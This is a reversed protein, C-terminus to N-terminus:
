PCRRTLKGEQELKEVTPGFKSIIKSIRENNKLFDELKTQTAAKTKEGSLDVDRELKLLDNYAKQMELTRMESEEVDTLNATGKLEDLRKQDKKKNWSQKISFDAGKGGLEIFEKKKARLTEIETKEQPTPQSKAELEDLRAKDASSWVKSTDMSLSFDLIDKKRSELEDLEKNEERTLPRAPIADIKVDNGSSDKQNSEPVGDRADTLENLRAIEEASFMKPAVRVNESGFLKKAEKVASAYQQRSLGSGVDPTIIVGGNMSLRVQVQHKQGFEQANAIFKKALEEREAKQSELELNYKYGYSQWSQISPPTRNQVSEGMVKQANKVVAQFKAVVGAMGDGNFEFSISDGQMAAESIFKPDSFLRMASSRDFLLSKGDAFQVEVWQRKGNNVFDDVSRSIEKLQTEMISKEAGDPMSKVREAIADRQASLAVFADAEKDALGMTKAQDRSAVVRDRAAMLDAAQQENIHGASFMGSIVSAAFDKGKARVMSDIWQSPASEISNAAISKSVVAKIADAAVQKDSKGFAPGAGGLLAAPAIAVLLKKMEGSEYMEGIVEDLNSYADLGNMINKEAIQQLTEQVMETLLETGAGALVRLGKTPIKSLARGVFPLGDFAYAPIIKIQADLSRLEANRAATISGTKSLVMDGIGGAISATEVAFSAVAGTLLPVVLPTGAGGTAAVVGASATMSPLTGGVFQGLLQPGAEPDLYEMFSEGKVEPLNVIQEMASGVAYLAQAASFQQGAADSKPNLFSPANREYFSAINKLQGGITVTTGEVFRQLVAPGLNFMGSGYFRKSAAASIAGEREGIAKGWAAEYIKKLEETEAASLSEESDMFKKEAASIRENAAEVIRKAEENWRRNYRQNVANMERQAKDLFASAEQDYKNKYELEIADSQEKLTANAQEVTIQGANVQSQLSQLIPAIKKQAEVSATSSFQESFAKGEEEIRQNLADVEPKSDKEIASLASKQYLEAKAKESEVQSLFTLERQDRKAKAKELEPKFIEEARKETIRTNVHDTLRITLLKVFDDDDAMGARSAIEKARLGVAFPDARKIGEVDQKLINLEDDGKAEKAIAENIYADYRPRYKLAPELLKKERELNEIGRAIASQNAPAGYFSKQTNTSQIRTIEDNIESIRKEAYRFNRLLVGKQTGLDKPQEQLSQAQLGDSPTAQGTPQTLSKQGQEQGQLPADALPAKAKAPDEVPPIEPAKQASGNQAELMKRKWEPISNQSVAETGVPSSKQAELMKRKWEPVQTEQEM